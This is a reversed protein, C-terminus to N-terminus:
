KTKKDEQERNRLIKRTDTQNKKNMMITVLLYYSNILLVM